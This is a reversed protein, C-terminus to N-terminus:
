VQMPVPQEPAPCTIDRNEPHCHQRIQKYLYEARKHSLGAPSIVPPLDTASLSSVDVGPKLIDVVSDGLTSSQSVSVKGPSASSFSSKQYKTVNRVPVFSKAMHEDWQYWQWPFLQTTNFAASSNVAEALQSVTDVDSKGYKQKVLGFREDVFCRTHGVRMFMLDITDNLGVITRWSLYALVTRNKNQGCSNDCHLGLYPKGPSNHSLYYHLMSLVSNPCHSKSGDPGITENEDVLFNIQKPIAEEAVGFIQIRRPVKFYLAGVERAHHPICAQQAFDFTIHQYKPTQDPTCDARSQKADEICQRYIDRAQTAMVIHAKLAEAYKLRTEVTRSRSILAQLDACTGCVDEKPLMIVINRCEKSWLKAFTSYAVKGGAKSYEAHVQKKTTVCPLYTPAQKNHGRPAAPQPLGNVIAYNRIFM